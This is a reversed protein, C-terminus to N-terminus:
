QMRSSLRNPIKAPFLAQALQTQPIGCFLLFNKLKLVLIKKAQNTVGFVGAKGQNIIMFGASQDTREQLMRMMICGCASAACKIKEGSWQSFAKSIQNLNLPNM